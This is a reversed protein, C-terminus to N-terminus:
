DGNGQLSEATLKGDYFREQDVSSLSALLRGQTEGIARELAEQQTVSYYKALRELARKAHISVVAQLREHQGGDPSKLRERYERQRQAASKAM